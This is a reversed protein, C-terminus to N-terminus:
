RGGPASEEQSEPAIPSRLPRVPVEDPSQLVPDNVAAGEAAMELPLRLVQDPPVDVKLVADQPPLNGQLTVEIQGQWVAPRHQKDNRPSKPHWSDFSVDFGGPAVFVPAPPPGDEHEELFLTTRATEGRRVRLENRTASLRQLKRGIGQVSLTEVVPRGGRDMVLKITSQKLGSGSLKLSATVELDAGPEITRTSPEAATCGCTKTVNTITLTQGTTNRLHFTYDVTASISEIPVVGFDHEREGELPAMGSRLAFIVGGALLIVSAALAISIRNITKRQM